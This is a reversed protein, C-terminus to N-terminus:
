KIVPKEMSERPGSSKSMEKTHSRTCCGRASEDPTTGFFSSKRRMRPNPNSKQFCLLVGAAAVSHPGTESFLRGAIKFSCHATRECVHARARHDAVAGRPVNAAVM